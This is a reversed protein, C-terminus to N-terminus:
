CLCRGSDDAQSLVAGIGIDSADTDFIFPKNYDPYAALVPTSILLRRLTEFATQCDLTWKFEKNKETLKHLRKALTAFFIVFRRYYSSLGLFQRVESTFTPELWNAVRSTKASDTAVGDQSVVHGLFSVQKCCFSYKSSHLKLGANRLREFVKSLNRLHEEFSRGPIVVDDLYVLCNSCQLGTLVADMLRQPPLLMAFGSPCLSDRTHASRQRRLMRLILKLRGNGM